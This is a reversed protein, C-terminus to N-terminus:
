KVVVEAYTLTAGGREVTINDAGFNEAFRRISASAYKPDIELAYCIRNLQECAIGTSFSGSFLDLVIGNAQSSNKIPYALLPLPKM